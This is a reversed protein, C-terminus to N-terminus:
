EVGVRTCHSKSEVLDCEFIPKGQVNYETLHWDQKQPSLLAFGYGSRTVFSEILAGPAPQANVPLRDPIGGENQSGSNGLVLTSPHSSKFNLAEFLHVHGHMAIDIGDAFLREPHLGRMVSQLGANGNNVKGADQTPAFALVPHHSLFFNHPTKSALQDVQQLASLFKSYAIEGPRLDKTGTRSSDFVIFQTQANLSVGYPESFDAEDDQAPNNCSRAMSWAQPAFFRYWGQGARACSEHNGRVFVWPAIKLLPKAPQFFDADWTDMGYGWPSGACGALASPCPSERYHIDGIHIVLDPKLAAANKVVEAFPWDQADNCLQFAQDSAKLRCGTDAIILIRQAQAPAIPLAIGGVTAKHTGGLLLAECSRLTFAAEKGEKQVGSRQPVTAPAARLQMGQVQGDIDIQPCAEATTLVRASANGDGVQVTFASHIASDLPSQTPLNVCGALASFFGLCSCIRFLLMMM